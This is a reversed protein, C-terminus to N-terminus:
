LLWVVDYVCDHKAKAVSPEYTDEVAGKDYDFLFKCLDGLFGKPALRRGSGRYDKALDLGLVQRM